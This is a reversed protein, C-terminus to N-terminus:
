RTNAHRGGKYDRRHPNGVHRFMPLPAAPRSRERREVVTVDPRKHNLFLFPNQQTVSCGSIGDPKSVRRRRRSNAAPLAPLQTISVRIQVREGRFLEPVDRM